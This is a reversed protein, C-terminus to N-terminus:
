QSSCLALLNCNEANVKMFAGVNAQKRLQIKEQIKKAETKLLLFDAEAELAWRETQKAEVTESLDFPFRSIELDVKEVVRSESVSAGGAWKGSAVVQGSRTYMIGDGSIIGRKFSGVFRSGDAYILAGFGNRACNAFEGVFKYTKGAGESFYEVGKGHMCNNRFEGVYKEGNGYGSLGMGERQGSRWEGIYFRTAGYDKPGFCPASSSHGTCRPLKSLLNIKTSKPPFKAQDLLEKGVLTGKQWRGSTLVRDEHSYHIGDGDPFGNAFSGVFYSGSPRTWIGRGGWNGNQYEGLYNGGSPFFDEGWCKDWRSTPASPDCAPLASIQQDTGLSKMGSNEAKLTATGLSWVVEVLADKQSKEEIMRLKIACIKLLAVAAEDLRQHGSSKEMRVVSVEGEQNLRVYILSKGEENMLKSQRPYFEGTNSCVDENPREPSLSVNGQAWAM